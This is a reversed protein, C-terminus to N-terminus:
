YHWGQIDDHSGRVITIEKVERITYKGTPLGNKDLVSENINFSERPMSNECIVYKCHLCTKIPHEEMVVGKKCTCAMKKWLIKSDDKLNNIKIKL